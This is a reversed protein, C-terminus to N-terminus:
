YDNKCSFSIFIAMTGVISMNIVKIFIDTM